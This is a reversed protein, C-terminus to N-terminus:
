PISKRPSGLRPSSRATRLERERHSLIRKRGRQRRRARRAQGSRARRQYAGRQVLRHLLTARTPHSGRCQRRRYRQGLVSANGARGELERSLDWDHVRGTEGLVRVAPSPRGSDLLLAHVYPAVRLAGTVAERGGVHTVQAVRVYPLEAQLAAYTEPPVTDVLQVTDVRCAAVYTVIADPHTRSTLLLRSALPPLSVAIEAIL